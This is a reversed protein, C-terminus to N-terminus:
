VEPRVLLSAANRYWSNTRWYPVLLKGSQELMHWSALPQTLRGQDELWFDSQQALEAVTYRAFLDPTARRATAEAAVAKVGNECFEFSSAHNRDPWACGPCDFGDPQNASLLTKAGKIAIGHRLLTNKVSNLAGWGGAPGPYFEIKEAPATPKTM